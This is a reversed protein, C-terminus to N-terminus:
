IGALYMLYLAAFAADALAMFLALPRRRWPSTFVGTAFAAKELTALTLVITRVEPHYAAYILLIGFCFILLGWHRALNLTIPDSPAQGFIIQMATVPALCLPLACATAVGTTLLILEIHAAVM